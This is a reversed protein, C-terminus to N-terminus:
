KLKKTMTFVNCGDQYAYTVKDMVKKVLFIGLGGIQRESSSLKTDPDEKKLPDFPIGSDKFTLTLFNNNKDLIIEVTGEGNGYAYNAINVFIEEVALDIENVVKDSYDEGKLYQHVFDTVKDLNEGKADVTFSAAEEGMLEMCVMTMDDFQPAKGVFDNVSHIIGEIIQRPKETKCRNLAEVMRGLTYMQDESDTAEPIGDTYLFLKDGKDLHNEINKYRIGDMAGIVLGHPTKVIEFDGDRRMIAPDDHGANAAILKGTSLELFGLWVTVFMDAKNHGCIRQNVTTLVEGPTVGTRSIENILIKSVMMFLAAPIGKGSVDAIVMALHDDDILFYDYFDGGVEKAPTMSAYIDFDHRDPFAPYGTPLSNQQIAAALSLETGIHEKEATVATLDDVYALMEEEMKDISSALTSIDEIASIKDGLKEGPKNEAAFRKAENTIKSIPDVFQKRIYIAVIFAAIVAVTVTFIVIYILYPRLLNMQEAIPRQVCLVAVVNGDSNTVPVLTTVHPEKGKLDTTRYITGYAAKGEYLDRYVEAYEENTTDRQYGIEWPTYSSGEQVANLVNTFRGYDSTDVKIVYVLTLNMKQCYMNMLKASRRYEDDEGNIALYYDIKDGDILAKATEAMHYTTESYFNQFASTYGSYGIFSVLVGFILLLFVMSGIINFAFSSRLKKFLKM